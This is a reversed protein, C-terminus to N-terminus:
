TIGMCMSLSLSIVIVTLTDQLHHDQSSLRCIKTLDALKVRVSQSFQVCIQVHVVEALRVITIVLDHNRTHIDLEPLLGLKHLHGHKLTQASSDGCAHM